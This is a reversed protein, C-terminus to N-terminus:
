RMHFLLWFAGIRVIFSVMKMTATPHTAAAGISTVSSPITFSTIGDCRYFAAYGISVVTDPITVSTIYQCSAFAEKEISTVPYGRITDPIIVDGSAFRDCKKITVQRGSITYTFDGEEEASVSNVPLLTFLIALALFFSLISRRNIKM